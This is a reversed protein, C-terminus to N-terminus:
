CVVVLRFPINATTGALDRTNVYVANANGSRDAVNVTGSAAGADPPGVTAVATCQTVDRGFGVEYNGTGLSISSVTVGNSSNALTGDGNVEAFLVGVDENTLGFDLVEDSDIADTAIDFTTITNDLIDLDGDLAAVDASAITNDLVDDGTLTENTVKQSNVSNPALKSTTVAGNALDPNTVGNNAIDNTGVSNDVIKASNISNSAIDVAAVTGTALDAGTLSGDVINTGTFENAAYATGATLLLLVAAGGVVRSFTPRPVWRTLMTKRM